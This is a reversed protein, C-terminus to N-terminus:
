GTVVGSVAFTVLWVVYSSETHIYVDTVRAHSHEAHLAFTHSAYTVMTCKSASYHLLCELLAKGPTM